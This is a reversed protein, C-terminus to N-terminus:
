PEREQLKRQSGGGTGGNTPEEARCYFLLLTRLIVYINLLIIYYNGPLVRVSASFLLSRYSPRQCDGGNHKQASGEANIVPWPVPFQPHIPPLHGAAYYNCGSLTM